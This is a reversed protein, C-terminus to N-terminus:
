PEGDTVGLAALATRAAAQEAEKKTHGEASAALEAGVHVEVTFRRRHPPGAEAVLRYDPPPDGRSQLLEQLASKFDGTLATLLGPRRAREVLPRLERVVFERAAEIGGDLYIAAIIAECTDAVLALKRRGGTKEEGRGLFLHDGLALREAVRALAPASVLSAKVKSKQGEDFDPFERFLLDAVVFGLIADGLFELSENDRIGGTVDEQAHSRHTLAHELLGRDRFRYGMVAELGGLADGINVVRGGDQATRYDEIVRRAFDAQGSPVEITLEGLATTMPMVGRLGDSSVVLASLGHAELLGLVVSVEIGSATRFVVALESM